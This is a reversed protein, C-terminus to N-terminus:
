REHRSIFDDALQDAKARDDWSRQLSSIEADIEALMRETEPSYRVEFVEWGYGALDGSHHRALRLTYTPCAINLVDLKLKIWHQMLTQQALTM